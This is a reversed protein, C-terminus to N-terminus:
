FKLRTFVKKLNCGTANLTFNQSLGGYFNTQLQADYNLSYVTDYMKFLIKAYSLRADKKKSMM